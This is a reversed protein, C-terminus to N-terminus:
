GAPGTPVPMCAGTMPSPSCSTLAAAAVGGTAAIALVVAAAAHSAYPKMITEEPHMDRLRCAAGLYCLVIGEVLAFEGSGGGLCSGKELRDTLM